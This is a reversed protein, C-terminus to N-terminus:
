TQTSAKKIWKKQKIHNNKLRYLKQIIMQSRDFFNKTRESDELSVAGHVIPNAEIAFADIMTKVGQDYIHLQSLRNNIPGLTDLSPKDPLEAEFAEALHRLSKEISLRLQPISGSLDGNRFTKVASEFNLLVDEDLRLSTVWNMEELPESYQFSIRNGSSIEVVAGDKKMFHLVTGIASMLKAKLFGEDTVKYYEQARMKSESNGIIIKVIEIKRFRRKPNMVFIKTVENHLDFSLKQERLDVLDIKIARPLYELNANLTKKVYSFLHDIKGSLVYYKKGEVEGEVVAGFDKLLYVLRGFQGMEMDIGYKERLKTPRLRANEFIKILLFFTAPDDHDPDYAKRLISAAEQLERSSKVDAKFKATISEDWTVKGIFREDIIKVSNYAGWILSDRVQSQILRPRCEAKSCIAEIATDKFPFKGSFMANELRSQILSKADDVSWTNIWIDHGGVGSYESSHLMKSFDPVGCLFVVCGYESLTEFLGQSSRLFRLVTNYDDIKDLEDYLLVFADFDKKLKNLYEQLLVEATAQDIINKGKLEFFKARIKEFSEYDTVSNKLIHLVTTFLAEITRLCFNLRLKEPDKAPNINEAPDKIHINNVYISMIRKDRKKLTEHVIYNLITTKGMGRLGIVYYRKRMLQQGQEYLSSLVGDVEQIPAYRVLLKEFNGSNYYLPEETFPDMTLGWYLTWFSVKTL